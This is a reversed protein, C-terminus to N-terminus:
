EKLELRIQGWKQNRKIADFPFGVYLRFTIQNRFEEELCGVAKVFWASKQRQDPLIDISTHEIALGDAIADIENKNHDEPWDQVQIDPHGHSALHQVFALIVARERKTGASKENVSM